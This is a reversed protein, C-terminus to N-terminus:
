GKKKKNPIHIARGESALAAERIAENITPHAHITDILEHVTSELRIAAAGEAVLETAHPALIHLGLIEDLEDGILIKIMGEGDNAILARGNASLPFRGVHYPIKKEKLQEETYGVGALEPFSYIGSPVCCPDYKINEGMANEAATEGMASATHALMIQGVCDGIAYVGPVATQLYEDVLIRGRECKLGGAEPDLGETYPRRGVACLVKEASLTIEKDGYNLVMQAGNELDSVSVVKHEVLVEIGQKELSKTLLGAMEHDLTSALTPLAEVVTVRCGLANFACAMELGIVGGGIIAMSAPIADLSLAGTSDIVFKSEKLGPIPPIAPISGTAVIIRDAEMLQHSGDAMEIQLTKAKIFRATGMIVKVGNARLLGSVGGVLKNVTRDKFAMVQSWDISELKLNIGCEAGVQAERVLEAPHLLAKTPICGVNLCTGGLHEKEILTVEAGLQAARIAAVYGGPGGGIVVVSRKQSQSM